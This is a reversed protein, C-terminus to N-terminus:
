YCVLVKDLFILWFTIKFKKTKYYTDLIKRAYLQYPVLYVCTRTRVFDLM